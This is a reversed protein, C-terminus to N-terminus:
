LKKKKKPPKPRPTKPKKEKKEKKPKDTKSQDGDATEGDASDKTDSALDGETKNSDEGELHELISDGEASDDTGSKAKKKRTRTTKPTKPEKPEKKKKPEKGEKGKKKYSRKKKGDPPTGETDGEIPTEANNDGPPMVATGPLGQAHANDQQTPAGDSPVDGPAMQPAIPMGSQQMPMPQGAQMMGPPGPADGIAPVGGPGPGAQSVPGQAVQSPIGVTGSMSSVPLPPSAQQILQALQGGGQPGQPM